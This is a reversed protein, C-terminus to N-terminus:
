ECPPPSDICEPSNKQDHAVFSEAVDPSRVGIERAVGVEVMVQRGFAQHPLAAIHAAILEHTKGVSSM